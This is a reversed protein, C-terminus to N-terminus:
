DSFLGTIGKQMAVSAGLDLLGGLLNERILQSEEWAQAQIGKGPHVLQSASAQRHKFCL